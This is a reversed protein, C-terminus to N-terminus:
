LTLVTRMENQVLHHHSLTSDVVDLCFIVVCVMLMIILDALLQSHTRVAFVARIRTTAQLQRSSSSAAAAAARRYEVSSQHYFAHQYFNNSFKNFYNNLLSVTAQKDNNNNNNNNDTTEKSGTAALQELGTMLLLPQNPQTNVQLKNGTGMRGHVTDLSALFAVYQSNNPSLFNMNTSAWNQMRCYQYVDAMEWVGLLYVVFFSYVICQVHRALQKDLKLKKLERFQKYQTIVPNATKLAPMTTETKTTITAVTKTESKDDRLDLLDDDILEDDEEEESDELV